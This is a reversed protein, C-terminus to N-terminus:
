DGGQIMGRRRNRRCIRYRRSQGRSQGPAFVPTHNQQERWAESGGPSGHWGWLGRRGAERQHPLQSETGAVPEVPVLALTGVEVAVIVPDIDLDHRGSARRRDIVHPPDDIERQDLLPEEAPEVGVPVVGEDEEDLDLLKM